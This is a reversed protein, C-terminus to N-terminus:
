LDVSKAHTVEEPNLSVRIGLTFFAFGEHAPELAYHLKQGSERFMRLLGLGAGGKESLQGSDLTQIYLQHIESPSLSGLHQLTHDLKSSAKQDVFNSAEIYFDSGRRYFALYCEKLEPAFQPNNVGHYYMNQLCEILINIVNKKRRMPVRLEVLKADVMQLIAAILEGNLTGAYSLILHNKRMMQYQQFAEPM